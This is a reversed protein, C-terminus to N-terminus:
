AFMALDDSYVKLRGLHSDQWTVRLRTKQTRPHSRAQRWRARDEMNKGINKGRGLDLM